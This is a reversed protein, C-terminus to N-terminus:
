FSLKNLEMISHCLQLFLHSISSFWFRKLNRLSSDAKELRTSYIGHEAQKMFTQIKLQSKDQCIVCVSLRPIDFLHWHMLYSYSNLFELPM